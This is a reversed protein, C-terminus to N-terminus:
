GAWGEKDLNRYNIAESIHDAMINETGDLDSVTRAVKLIRDYARASLGRVEMATKLLWGGAEDLHCYRRLMSSSMQANCYIGKYKDFRLAQIARAKIVRATEELASDRPVASSEFYRYASVVSNRYKYAAAKLLKQKVDYLEQYHHAFEEDEVSEFIILFHGGARELLQRDNLLKYYLEIFDESPNLDPNKLLRLKERDVLTYFATFRGIVDSDKRVQMLLEDMSARYNVKGYFSYGRNLSLFAPMDVNEIVIEATEGRVWELVEALDKGNEDVLAARFPFEWPKGEAPFKQKLFFTFKRSARDYEASVDVVPFKTQRLWTEAMEKLPQGSVEEM